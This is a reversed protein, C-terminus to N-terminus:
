WLQRNGGEVREIVALTQSDVRYLVSDVVYYRWPGDVPPLGYYGPNFLLRAGEPLPTGPPLAQTVRAPRECKTGPLSIRCQAIAPLATAPVALAFALALRLM